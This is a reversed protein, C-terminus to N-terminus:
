SEEDMFKFYRRSRREEEEEWVEEESKQLIANKCLTAGPKYL